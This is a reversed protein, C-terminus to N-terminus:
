ERGASFGASLRRHIGGRAGHGQRHPRCRVARARPQTEPSQRHPKPSADGHNYPRRSIACHRKLAASQRPRLEVSDRSRPQTGSQPKPRFWGCRNSASSFASILGSDQFSEVAAAPAGRVCGHEPWDAIPPLTSICRTPPTNDPVRGAHYPLGAPKGWDWRRRACHHQRFWPFM